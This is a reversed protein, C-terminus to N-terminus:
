NSSGMKLMFEFFSILNVGAPVEVMAKAISSESINTVEMVKETGKKGTVEVLVPFNNGNFIAERMIRNVAYDTDGSLNNWPDILMGWNVRVNPTLWISTTSTSEKSKVLLEYAERGNIVKKRDTYEYSINSESNSSNNSSVGGSVMKLIGEIESKRVQLADNKELLVIFDKKDNRILLGEPNVPQGFNMKEEGKLFIRDSTVFMNLENVDPKGNNEGYVKMTIQGQFQAQLSTALGVTMLILLTAIKNTKM